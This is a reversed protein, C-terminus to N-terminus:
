ARILRALMGALGAGVLAVGLVIPASGFYFNTFPTDLRGPLNQAADFIWVPHVYQVISPLVGFLVGGVMPALPAWMALLAVLFMLLAGLLLLALAALDTGQGYSLQVRLLQRNQAWAILAIAVPTVFLGALVGVIHAIVRTSGASKQPPPAGRPSSM